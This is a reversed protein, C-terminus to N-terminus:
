KKKRWKPPLAAFTKIEFIKTQKHQQGAKLVKAEFWSNIDVHGPPTVVLQWAKTHM